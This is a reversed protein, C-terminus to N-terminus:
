VAWTMLLIIDRLFYSMGVRPDVAGACSPAGRGGTALGNALKAKFRADMQGIHPGSGSM